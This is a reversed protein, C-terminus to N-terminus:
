PRKPASYQVSGVTFFLTDSVVTVNTITSGISLGTSTVVGCNITGVRIFNNTYFDFEGGSSISLRTSNWGNTVLNLANADDTGVRMLGGSGRILTGVESTETAEVANTIGMRLTTTLDTMQMGAGLANGVGGNLSIFRLGSWDGINVTYTTDDTKIGIKNGNSFIPSNALGYTNSKHYPVYGVTLNKVYLSDSTTLGYIHPIITILGTDAVVGSYYKTVVQQDVGGANGAIRTGIIAINSTDTAADQQYIGAFTNNLVSGGIFSVNKMKDIRIGQALNKSFNCNTLTINDHYKAWLGYYTNYSANCNIMSNSARNIEGFWTVVFGYNSHLTDSDIIFGSTCNSYLTNTSIENNFGAAASGGATCNIYKIEDCNWQTFSNAIGFNFARCSILNIDICSNLSIGSSSNTNGEAVVNILNSKFCNNLTISFSEDVGSGGTGYINKILVNDITVNYCSDFSLGYQASDAVSSLSNGDFTINKIVINSDGSANYNQLITTYIHTEDKRLIVGDRSEGEITVDSKVKLRNALNGDLLYIGNPLYISGKHAYASDLAKQIATNAKTTGDAKANFPYSKVNFSTKQGFLLCPIFFLIMLLNKM